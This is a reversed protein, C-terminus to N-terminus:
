GTTQCGVEVDSSGGLKVAESIIHELIQKASSLAEEGVSGAVLVRIEIVPKELIYGKPHSKIYANLHRKSLERLLPAISAEPVGKIQSYCEVIAVQPTIPSLIATVESEFMAEMEEPVGPLMILITENHTVACGPASGVPNRLARCGEPMYAMKLREKTLPLGKKSYFERLLLEAERNLVLPKGIAVAMAEMTVDDHTPGLGGTSVILRVRGLGRKVEEVIDSVVDPVVIIRDVTFGMFTLRRALWSANTNVVRGVLLESGISIIWARLSSGSGGVGIM